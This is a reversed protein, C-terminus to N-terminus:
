PRWLLFSPDGKRMQLALAGQAPAPVFNLPDLVHVHLDTLDLELRHVGAHALMIADYQGDRLKQIRTPVNGRLAEIRLDPQGLELQNKRRMSSAWWAAVSSTFPRPSTWREPRVLVLDEVPGRPPVAAVVLGAPPTTESTATYPSTSTATSFRNSKKTSSDRAKWRTLASMRSKTEARRSCWSRWPPAAPRCSTVCTTRKGCHSTSGRTGIRIYSRHFVHSFPVRAPALSTLVQSATRAGSPWSRPLGVYKELYAVIREVVQRAEADLGELDEAFTDGMATDRIAKIMNPLEILGTGSRAQLREIYEVLGAELLSECKGVETARIALNQDAIEKLATMDVVTLEPRERFGADLDSPVGLDLVHLPGAPLMHAQEGTLLAQDSGTCIVIADPRAALADPLAELTGVKSTHLINALAQARELSRNLVHVNRYGAKGLFRGVSTNTAGAGIMLISADLPLNWAKFAQWGLSNVSVAQTAVDTDTFVKKATEVVSRGTVRLRDGALRHKMALDFAERVQTLIEREGLVMSELSSAVRMLHRMAQEGRYVQVAAMIRTFAEPALGFQQMLHAQRGMCFYKEDSMIFEVRNCTSLFVIGQLGLQIKWNTLVAPQEDPAVHLLGVDEISAHQFNLSLIQLHEVGM